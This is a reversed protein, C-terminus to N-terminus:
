CTLFRGKKDFAHALYLKVRDLPVHIWDTDEEEM